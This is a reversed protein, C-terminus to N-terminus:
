LSIQTLKNKKLQRLEGHIQISVAESALVEISDSAMAFTFHVGKFQLKFSMKKWRKPLDPNVQLKEGRLDIGAYTSIAIM